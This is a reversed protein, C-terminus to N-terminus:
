QGTQPTFNCQWTCDEGSTGTQMSADTNGMQKQMPDIKEALRTLGAALFLSSALGSTIQKISNM